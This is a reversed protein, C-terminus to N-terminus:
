TPFWRRLLKWYSTPLSWPPWSPVRLIYHHLSWCAPLIRDVFQLLNWVACISFALLQAQVQSVEGFPCIVCSAILCVLSLTTLDGSLRKERKLLLWGSLTGAYFLFYGGFNKKCPYFFWLWTLLFDEYGKGPPARKGPRSEAIRFEWMPNIEKCLVALSYNIKGRCISKQGHYPAERQM